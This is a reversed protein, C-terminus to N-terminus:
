NKGNKKGPDHHILIWLLGLVLTAICGVVIGDVLGDTMWVWSFECAIVTAFVVLLTVDRRSRSLNAM